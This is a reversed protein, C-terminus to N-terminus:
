KGFTEFVTKYRSQIPEMASKAVVTGMEALKTSEAVFGEWSDKALKQQIQAAEAATKCSTVTKVSEVADEFSKSTYGFVEKTVEELGTAFKTGALVAADVNAKNFAVVDEYSKFMPATEERTLLSMDQTPPAASGILAGSWAADCCSFFIADSLVFDVGNKHLACFKM